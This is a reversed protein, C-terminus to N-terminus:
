KIAHLKDIGGVGNSKLMEVVVGHAGALKNNNRKKFTADIDSFLVSLQLPELASLINAHGNDNEFATIKECITAVKWRNRTWRYM